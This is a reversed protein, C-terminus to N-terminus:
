VGRESMEQQWRKLTKLSVETRPHHRGLIRGQLELCNELLLIAEENKSQSKWMHALNYMSTLTDPHEEGLVKKQIEIVQVELEKAEKWRGQNCYTLALNNISTLTDPHEEGLVKKQTEIVQVFLEEAENYRGDSLLALACKEVLDTRDAGEQESFSHSLAYRAHPLLRRWKSRNGPDDYPFVSLLCKIAQETWQDLTEQTQLWNRLAYHPLQHIDIASEAPRRTILAYSNLVRIADEREYPSAAKLLDLPIDKRDLCAALLLYNAALPTIHRIHSMAILLTTAVPGKIDYEQRRDESVQSSREAAKEKQKLLQSRYSQLTIKRTNIYAAAQVIALPLYSLEQILLKAEQQESGSFLTNLYNELMRQAMGPTMEALEIINQLSLRMAIDSNTTTFIISGTTSQPLYDVLNTARAKSGGNSWLNIDDANDFILLWRGANKRSLHHKVLQRIDAKENDWGPIDLKQAINAYSQHLSDIGSADIWFISCNKDRKRTRHAVELALQSKGTGAPGIITMATAQKDESLKAEVEALQSERGVFHANQSFPIISPASDAVEVESQIRRWANEKGEGYSTAMSVGLIGLLCYVNDEEETTRRARAWGMRETTTFKDLPYNRLAELPVGTIEHVLQELSTKDGIRCGECSFFEVSVPAILEQLTWGRTFWESARFSAEWGNQQAIETATSASVDPLFVYCKAAKKYWQFMSNIAKSRERLNWKDICCTDIWFYQLQDRATQEACFEIKRYGDKEKYTNSGLDEFLVESDGWRHSLIAYPPISKGSFDTSVLRESHDFHLLRM